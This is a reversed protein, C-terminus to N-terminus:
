HPIFYKLGKKPLYIAKKYFHKIVEALSESLGSLKPFIYLSDDLGGVQEWAQSFGEQASFEAPINSTGDDNRGLKDPNKRYYVNESARQLNFGAGFIEGQIVPLQNVLGELELCVREFNSRWELVAPKIKELRDSSVATMRELTLAASRLEQQAQRQKLLGDLAAAQEQLVLAEDIQAKAAQASAIEQDLETDFIKEELTKNVM